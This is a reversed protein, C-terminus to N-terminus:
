PVNTVHVQQFLRILELDRQIRIELSVVGYRGGAGGPTYTFSCEFVDTALLANSGAGPPTPQAANIGYNWYRRLTRTGPDPDCAYTVAHQM